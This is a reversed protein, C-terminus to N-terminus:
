VIINIKQCDMSEFSVNCEIIFKFTIHNQRIYVTSSEVISKHLMIETYFFENVQAPYVIKRIMKKKKKRSSQSVSSCM